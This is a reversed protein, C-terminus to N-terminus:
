DSHGYGVLQFTVTKNNPNKRVQVAYGCKADTPEGEHSGINWFEIEFEVWKEAPNRERVEIKQLIYVDEGDRFLDARHERRKLNLGTVVFKLALKALRKEENTKVSIVKDLHSGEFEFIPQLIEDTESFIEMSIFKVGMGNIDERNAELVTTDTEELKSYQNIQVLAVIMLSLSIGFLALNAITVQFSIGILSKDALLRM